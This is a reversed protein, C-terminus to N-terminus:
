NLGFFGGVRTVYGERWFCCEMVPAFNEIDDTVVEFCLCGTYIQIFLSFTQMTTTPQPGTTLLLGPRKGELAEYAERPTQPIPIINM